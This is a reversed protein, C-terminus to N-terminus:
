AAEPDFAEFYERRWKAAEGAVLHRGKLKVM